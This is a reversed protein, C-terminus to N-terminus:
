ELFRYIARIDLSAEDEHNSTRLQLNERDLPKLEPENAMNACVEKWMQYKPRPGWQSTRLTPLRGKHCSMAHNMDFSASYVSMPLAGGM